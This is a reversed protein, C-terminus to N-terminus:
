GVFIAKRDSAIMMKNFWDLSQEFLEATMWGNKNAKHKIGLKDPKHKIEKFSRPKAFRGIVWCKVKHSSDANSCIVYTLRRKYEKSGAMVDKTTGHLRPDPAYVRCVQADYILGTEDMNYIEWPEYDKLIEHLETTASQAAERDASKSEGSIRFSKIGCRPYFLKSDLSKLDHIQGKIRIFLEVSELAKRRVIDGTLPINGDSKRM